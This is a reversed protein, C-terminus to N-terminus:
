ARSRSRPCSTRSSHFVNDTLHRVFVAKSSLFNRWLKKAWCVQYQDGFVRWRGDAPEAPPQLNVLDRPVNPLRVPGDVRRTSGELVVDRAKADSREPELETEHQPAPEDSAVPPAASVATGTDVGEARCLDNLRALRDPTFDKWFPPPNPFTSALSHPEEPEEM